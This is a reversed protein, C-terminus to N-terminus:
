ALNENFLGKEDYLKYAKGRPKANRISTDTLAM